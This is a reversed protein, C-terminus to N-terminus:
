ARSLKLRRLRNTPFRRVKYSRWKTMMRQIPSAIMSFGNYGVKMVITAVEILPLLIIITGVGAILAIVTSFKSMMSSIWDLPSKLWDFLRNAIPSHILQVDKLMSETLRSLREFKSDMDTLNSGYIKIVETKLRDRIVNALHLDVANVTVSSMDESDYIEAGIEFKQNIPLEFVYHPCQMKTNEVTINNGFCYIKYLGNYQKVQIDNTSGTIQKKCIDAHFLKDTTDLLQNEQNCPHATISNDNIWYEQVDMQCSNTTNIMIYRPGSYKMWCVKEPLTYNWFRFSEAKLIKVKTNMKPLVFKYNFAFNTEADSEIACSELDMPIDKSDILSENKALKFIEISAQNYILGDDISRLSDSMDRFHNDYNMMLAAIQPFQAVNRDIKNLREEYQGLKDNMLHINNRIAEFVGNAHRTYYKLDNLSKALADINDSNEAVKTRMEAQAGTIVIIAVIAVVPFLRKGRPPRYAQMKNATAAERKPRVLDNGCNNLKVKEKFLNDCDRFLMENTSNNDTINTFYSKCPNMIVVKFHFRQMHNVYKVNSRRYYVPETKKLRIGSSSMALGILILLISITTLLWNRNTEFKTRHLPKTLIDARQEEGSVHDVRINGNEHHETLWKHRVDIHKTRDQAQENKVINVTSKNDIFVHIAEDEILKLEIMMAKLPILKKVLETGAIYEAETTSLSVLSQRQCKWTLPNTGWLIVFGSTSRRTEKDNAYDADSYGVLKPDTEKKFTIGMNTTGKLYRLIRKLATWHLETPESTRSAVSVAHAIDPRTCTVLYLLCGVLEKFPFKDDLKPGNSLDTQGVEEPTSTPKCDSMGFKELTNEVYKRQTVFISDQNKIVELGLYSECDMVKVTLNEKLYDILEEALQKNEAIILGDDVYITLMIRRDESYYLCKDYISQILKFKKLFSDFKKHWQRPAQKLGYLSKVLKCVKGKPADYYEPCEMYLEEDLEGYLFATKIDFQIIEMSNQIATCLMIRVTTMSAVPAFTEKYDIDPIQSYGKAVLRAKYREITGDAKLKLKFIWRSKIPRVNSPKDVITWTNNEELAQIEEEMAEQWKNWHKSEKAEKVTQPEDNMSYLAVFRHGKKIKLGKPPLLSKPDYIPKLNGTRSRTLRPIFSQNSQSRELIEAHIQDNVSNLPTSSLKDTSEGDNSPNSQISMRPAENYVETDETENITELPRQYPPNKWAPNDWTITTYDQKEKQKEYKYYKNTFKVNCDIIVRKKDDDYLRYTNWRNTYGVFVYKEAVPDFKSKRQHKPTLRIAEEGFEHLNKVNPIRGFYLEYRTMHPKNISPLRNLVYTCANCAEAWLYKPLNSSILATRAAYIVMKNSAEARGNQEPNYASSLEHIIGREGLWESLNSNVLETGNDSYICGVPRRSNLIVSNIMQKMCDAIESKKAVFDILKYGSFEETGLIFYRKGGLSEVTADVTDFHLVAMDKSAMINTRARHPKRCSKGLVCDECQDPPTGIDLGEVMKEKKMRKITEIGCHGLRKHWSELTYATMAKRTADVHNLAKIDITYLCGDYYAPINEGDHEVIVKKHAFKITYNEKMAASVSFLNVPMQPVYLVDKLVKAGKKGYLFIWGRGCAQIHEGDGVMIEKPTGFECYNHLLHKMHTMHSTAGSDIIWREGTGIPIYEQYVQYSRELAMFSKEKKANKRENDNKLKYCEQWNHGNKKCYTCSILKEHNNNKNSNKNNNYTNKNYNNGGKNVKNNTNYSKKKWQNKYGSTGIFAANNADVAAEENRYNARIHSLLQEITGEPNITRWVRVGDKIIRPLTKCLVYIALTIDVVIETSKLNNLAIEYRGLYDSIKEQKQKSIEMFRSMALGTLDDKSGEHLSIIKTWLEHADECIGAAQTSKGDLSSYIVTKAEENLAEFNEANKANDSAPEEVLFYLEKAKLLSTVKIKWEAYNETTLVPLKVESIKGKTM